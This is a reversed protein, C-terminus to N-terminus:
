ISLFDYNLSFLFVGYDIATNFTNQPHFSEPMKETSINDLRYTNNIKPFWGVSLSINQSLDHEIGISFGDITAQNLDAYALTGDTKIILYGFKIRHRSSLPYILNLQGFYSMTNTSSFALSGSVQNESFRSFGISIELFNINIYGSLWSSITSSPNIRSKPLPLYNIASGLHLGPSSDNLMANVTVKTSVTALPKQKPLTTQTPKIPKIPLPAKIPQPTLPTINQQTSRNAKKTPTNKQKAPQVSKVNYTVIRSSINKAKLSKSLKLLADSNSGQASLQSASLLLFLFVFLYNSM